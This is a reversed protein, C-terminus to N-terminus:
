PKSVELIHCEARTGFRLPFVSTGYGESVLITQSEMSRFVGRQYPGMGLVRIQGGHTHGSLVLHFKKKDEVNMREFVYPDHVCLVQFYDTDEIAASMMRRPRLFYPDLGSLLFSNDKADLIRDDNSLTGINYDNLLSILNGEQYEHDNNGPIFYIPADLKLLQHLNSKLKSASTRKDVLDGGIIVVDVDEVGHMTSEKIIRNHIDSIFFIRLPIQSPYQSDTFKHFRLHDRQATYFMYCFSLVIFALVIIILLLM